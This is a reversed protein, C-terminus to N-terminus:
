GSLSKVEKVISYLWRGDIIKIQVGEELEEFPNVVDNTMAVIWWLFQNNYNEYAINEWWDNSEPYYLTVYDINNKVQDRIEFSRFVNFFYENNEELINFKQLQSFNNLRRGRLEKYDKDTVRANGHSM